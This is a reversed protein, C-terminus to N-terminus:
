RLSGLYGLFGLFGIRSHVVAMKLRCLMQGMGLGTPFISGGRGYAGSACHQSSSWPCQSTRVGGVVQPCLNNQKLFVHM